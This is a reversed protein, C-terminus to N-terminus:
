RSWDGSNLPCEILERFGIESPTVCKRFEWYGINIAAAAGVENEVAEVAVVLDSFGQELATATERPKREDEDGERLGSLVAAAVRDADVAEPEAIDARMTDVEEM